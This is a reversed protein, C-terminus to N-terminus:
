IILKIIILFTIIQTLLNYKTYPSKLIYIYTFVLYYYPSLFYTSFYDLIGKLITMQYVYIRFKVNPKSKLM